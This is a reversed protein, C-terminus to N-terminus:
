ASSCTRRVFAARVGCTRRVYAACIDIIPTFMKVVRTYGYYPYVFHIVLDPRRCHYVFCIVSNPWRCPYVFRIGLNPRRCDSRLLKATPLPLRLPDCFRAFALKLLDSPAVFAQPCEPCVQFSQLLFGLDRLHIICRLGLSQTTNLM